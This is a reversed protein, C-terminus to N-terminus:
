DEATYALLTIEGATVSQKFGFGNLKALNQVAKCTFYRTSCKLKDFNGKEKHWDAVLKELVSFKIGSICAQLVAYSLTDERPMKSVQQPAFVLRMKRGKKAPRGPAPTKEKKRNTTNETQKKISALRRLATAKDRFKKVEPQGLAKAHNNYEETLQTTTM